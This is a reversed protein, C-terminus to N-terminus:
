KKDTDTAKNAAKTAEGKVDTSATEKNKTAANNEAADTAPAANTPNGALTNSTQAVPKVDTEELVPKLDAPTPASAPKSSEAHKPAAPTKPAVAPDQTKATASKAETAQGANTETPKTFGPAAVTNTKAPQVPTKWPDEVPRSAKYAAYAAVGAAAVLGTILLGKGRKKNAKKQQKSFDKAAKVAQKQAKKVAKKDYGAKAALAEAQAPVEADNLKDAAVAAFEGAKVRAKAVADEVVPTAHEIQEQVKHAVTNQLEEFKKAGQNAQKEAVKAFHQAKKGTTKQAKNFSKQAKKQAKAAKKKCHTM